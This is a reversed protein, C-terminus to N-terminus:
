ACATDQSAKSDGGPTTSNASDSSDTDTGGERGCITTIVDLLGEVEPDRSQRIAEMVDLLTAFTPDAPEQGEDWGWVLAHLHDEPLRHLIERATALEAKIRSRHTEIRELCDMLAEENTPIGLLQGM